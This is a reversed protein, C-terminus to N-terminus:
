AAQGDGGGNLLLTLEAEAEATLGPANAVALRITEGRDPATVVARIIQQACNANALRRRAQTISEPPDGRRVAAGLDDRAQQAVSRSM